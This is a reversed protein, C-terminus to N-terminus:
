GGGVSAPSIQTAAPHGDAIARWVRARVIGRSIRRAWFPSDTWRHERRYFYNRAALYRTFGEELRQAYDLRAKEDGALQRHIAKAAHIGSEIAKYVGQSSLPDFAMASDGVALWDDGTMRDLRSTNASFIRPVSLGTWGRLRLKTQRTAAMQEQWYEESARRGQAYLDADTMLAAVMRGDPLLASYWWGSEVAEVLAMHKASRAPAGPSFFSTAAVLHDWSKRVAGQKYAVASARGTADVVFRARWRRRIGRNSTEVRWDGTGNALLSFGKAERLVGAGADKAAEALMADFRNRELHWGAGHPNFIFNNEHLEDRGWVSQIGAAPLHKEALFKGWVGLQMLPNRVAPPLIEGVRTKEYDTQELVLVSRGLRTLALATACGAPGGGIVAVEVTELANPKM